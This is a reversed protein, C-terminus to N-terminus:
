DEIEFCCRPRGTRNCHERVTTGVLQSILAEALQCAEPHDCVVSALPCGSSRIWLKGAGQEGEGEGEGEEAVVEADGGLAGLM